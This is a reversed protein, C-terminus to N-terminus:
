CSKMKLQCAKFCTVMLCSLLLQCICDLNVIVSLKKTKRKLVVSIFLWRLEMVIDHALM